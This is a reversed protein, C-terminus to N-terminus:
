LYVYENPSKREGALSKTVVTATYYVTYYMFLVKIRVTMLITIKCCLNKGQILPCDEGFKPNGVIREGFLKLIKQLNQVTIAAEKPNHAGWGVIARLKCVHHTGGCGINPVWDCEYYGPAVFSVLAFFIFFKM